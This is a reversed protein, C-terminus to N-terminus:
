LKYIFISQTWNRNYDHKNIQRFGSSRAASHYATYAPSGKIDKLHLALIGNEKLHKSCEEILPFCFDDIWNEKMSNSEIGYDESDLYPPSSFILDYKKESKKLFELCDINHFYCKTNCIHKLDQFLKNCSDIVLPQLDCGEYSSVNSCIAGLTRGGWGLFPDFIDGNNSYKKIISIAASPFFHGPTKITYRINSAIEKPTIKKGNKIAYVIAEFLRKNNNFAEYFSEHKISKAQFRITFISDLYSLGVMSMPCLKDVEEIKKLYKIEKDLNNYNYSFDLNNKLYYFIEYIDNFEGLLHKRNGEKINIESSLPRLNKLDWCMKFLDSDMSEYPFYIQPIIHDIQWTKKNQDYPGYNSFSMWDEFQSELHRYFDEWSYDLYKLSSIGNKTKGARNLAESIRSRMYSRLKRKPDIREKELQKQIIEKKHNQYYKAKRKSLKERREPDIRENMRNDLIKRRFEFDNAYKERFKINTKKKYEPDKVRNHIVALVRHRTQPNHYAELKQKRTKERECNKCYTSLYKGKRLYFCLDDKEQNCIACVKMYFLVIVFM